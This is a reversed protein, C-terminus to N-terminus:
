HELPKGDPGVLGSPPTVIHPHAKPVGVDTLKLNIRAIGHEGMVKKVKEDQLVEVLKRHAAEPGKAVIVARVEFVMLWPISEGEPKSQQENPPKKKEQDRKKTM